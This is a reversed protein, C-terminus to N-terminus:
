RKTKHGLCSGIAYLLTHAHESDLNTHDNREVCTRVTSVLHRRIEVAAFWSETQSQSHPFSGNKATQETSDSRHRKM